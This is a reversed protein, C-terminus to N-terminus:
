KCASVVSAGRSADLWVARGFSRIVEAALERKAESNLYLAQLDNQPPQSEYDFGGVQNVLTLRRDLFLATVIM